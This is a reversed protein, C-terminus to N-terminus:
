AEVTRGSAGYPSLRGGDLHYSADMFEAVIPDHSVLLFTTGQQQAIAQFLRLVRRVLRADLGNTPEDALIVAPQAALARAISIRQRQGGSLEGPLHGVWASLGVASLGARARKRREFYGLGRLRLAVDINEQATYTPLLTDNQFIFGIQKRRFRARARASMRTTDHGAVQITGHNPMDLTGILNLLTTKGSGSPGFLAVLQGAAVDLDVGCLVHVARSNDGFSREVGRVSIALDTM